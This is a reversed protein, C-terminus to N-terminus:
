AFNRSVVGIPKADLKSFSMPTADVEEVTSPEAMM